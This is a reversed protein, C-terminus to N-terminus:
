GRRFRRLVPVLEKLTDAGDSYITHLHLDIM